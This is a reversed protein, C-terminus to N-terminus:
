PRNHQILTQAIALYQQRASPDLAAFFVEDAAEVARIADQVGAQGIPTLSLCLARSDTASPARDVWGQQELNRIAKSLTMKDIKSHAGLTAQTPPQAHELLWQLSALLAFQTQTLSFEALVEAIKQQWLMTLQWLLFGPSHEAQEYQFASADPAAANSESV